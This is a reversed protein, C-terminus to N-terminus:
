ADIKPKWLPGPNSKHVWKLKLKQELCIDSSSNNVGHNEKYSNVKLKFKNLSSVKYWMIFTFGSHKGSVSCFLSILIFHHSNVCGRCLEWSSYVTCGSPCPHHHNYLVPFDLPKKSKSSPDQAIKQLTVNM